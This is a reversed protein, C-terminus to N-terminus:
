SDITDTSVGNPDPPTGATFKPITDLTPGSLTAGTGPDIQRLRGADNQDGPVGEYMWFTGDSRMQISRGFATTGMNAVTYEAAGTNPNVTNLDGNAAVTYLVVDDFTYPIVEQAIQATTDIPLVAPDAPNVPAFVGQLPDGSTYGTFGIHDEVIRQVSN